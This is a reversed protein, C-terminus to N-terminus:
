ECSPKRDVLHMARGRGTIHRSQKRLRTKLLWETVQEISALGEKQRIRELFNTDEDDYPTDVEPM